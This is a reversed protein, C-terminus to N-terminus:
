NHYILGTATFITRGNEDMGSSAITSLPMITVNEAKEAIGEVAPLTCVDFSSNLFRVIQELQKFGQIDSKGRSYLEFRTTKRKGRESTAGLDAIYVGNRGLALKQWFLSEDIKGLGNDELYKLLNITIM